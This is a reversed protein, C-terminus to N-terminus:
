ADTGEEEASVQHVAVTLARDDATEASGLYARVVAPASLVESPTGRALLRGADMVVVEDCTARVLDMDHEILLVASGSRRPIEAIAAGLRRSGAASQGAAPEDLVVIAAGSAALGAVELLRRTAMDLASVHVDAPPCGFWALHADVEEGSLRRGAASRVYMGVTLGAAVQAHQFSRRLGARARQHAALGRVDRGQVSVDEAAAPVFGSVANVFTSKGAGNPGILAVVSGAPVELDMDDVARVAGFTVGVGRVALAPAGDRRVKAAPPPEADPPVARAARARRGRMRIMDSQGALGKGSRLVFLALIGFAIVAYDAPVDVEALLAPFALFLLGGGLAGDLHHVGLMVALALLTVSQLSTFSAGTMLGQQASMLAGALGGLLAALAFASVKAVAVNIGHAGAARESFRIEQWAAGLRSRDVWALLGFLVTVIGLVLVFYGTDGAFPEPRLVIVGENEGPFQSASWLADTTTAIAFTAVALTPGRLRLAMLGILVGLPLAASAGALSWVWFGGPVDHVALWQTTWSGIGAFSLGCLLLVGLRGVVIGLSQMLLVAILGSTVVFLWYDNLIAPVTVAALVASGVAAVPQLRPRTV